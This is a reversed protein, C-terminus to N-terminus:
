EGEVVRLVAPDSNNGCKTAITEITYVENNNLTLAVSRTSGSISMPSWVSMLVTVTFNDVVMWEPYEWQARITVTGCGHQQINYTLNSPPPPPGPLFIPIAM